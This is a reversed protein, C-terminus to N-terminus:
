QNFRRSIKPINVGKRNTLRFGSWGLIDHVKNLFHLNVLHARLGDRNVPSYSLINNDGPDPELGEILRGNKNRIYGRSEDYRLQEESRNHPYIPPLYSTTGGRQKTSKRKKKRNYKSRSKNDHKMKRSTTRYTRRPKVYM